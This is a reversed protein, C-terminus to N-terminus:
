VVHGDAAGVVWEPQVHQFLTLGTGGRFEEIYVESRGIRHKGAFNDHWEQTFRIVPGQRLSFEGEYPIWDQSLESNGVPRMAKGYTTIMVALDGVGHRGRLGVQRAPLLGRQQVVQEFALMEVKGPPASGTIRQVPAAKAGGVFKGGQAHLVLKDELRNVRHNKAEIRLAYDIAHPHVM